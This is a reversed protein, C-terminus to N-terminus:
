LPTGAEIHMPANRPRRPKTAEKCVKTIAKGIHNWIKEEVDFRIGRRHGTITATAITRGTVGSRVVITATAREAAIEKIRGHVYAALNLTAGMDRFEETTQVPRLSTDVDYGRESLAKVVHKRVSTAEDGDFTFVAIKGSASTNQENAQGRTANRRKPAADVRSAIATVASLAFLALLTRHLSLCKFVVQRPPLGCTPPLPMATPSM